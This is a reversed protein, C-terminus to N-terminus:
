GPGNRRPHTAPDRTTINPDTAKTHSVLDGTKHTFTRTRQKPTLTSRCSGRETTNPFTSHRQRGAVLVADLKRNQTRRAKDVTTAQTQPSYGPRKNHHHYSSGQPQADVITPRTVTNTPNHSAPAANTPHSITGATRGRNHQHQLLASGRRTEQNTCKPFATPHLHDGSCPAQTRAFTLAARRGARSPWPRGRAQIASNIGHPPKGHHGRLCTCIGHRGTGHGDRFRCATGHRRNRPPRSSKPRNRPPPETAGGSAAAPDM